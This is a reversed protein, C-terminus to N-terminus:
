IKEVWAREAIVIACDIDESIDRTSNSGRRAAAAGAATDDSAFTDDATLETADIGTGEAEEPLTPETEATGAGEPTEEARL